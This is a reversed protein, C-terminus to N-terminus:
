GKKVLWEKADEINSTFYQDRKLLNAIIQQSLRLGLLANYIKGLKSEIESLVQSLKEKVQPSTVTNKANVISHRVKENIMIDKVEDLIDVEEDESLGELDIYIIKKGKHQIISLRKNM